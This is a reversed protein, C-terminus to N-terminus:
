KPMVSGDVAFDIREPSNVLELLGFLLAMMDSTSSSSDFSIVSKDDLDTGGTSATSM